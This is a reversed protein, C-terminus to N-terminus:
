PQESSQIALARSIWAFSRTKASVMHSLATCCPLEYTQAGVGGKPIGKTPPPPPPHQRRTAHGPGHQRDIHPHLTETFGVRVASIHLSRPM